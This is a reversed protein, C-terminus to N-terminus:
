YQYQQKPFLTLVSICGMLYFIVGNCKETKERERMLFGFLKVYIENFRKNLFRLIEALSVISFMYLLKNRVIIEDNSSYILLVIFGITSHLLKRSFESVDKNKNTNTATIKKIKAEALAAQKQQIIPTLKQKQIRNKVALNRHIAM